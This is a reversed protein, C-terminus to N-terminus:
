DLWKLKKALLWRLLSGAVVVIVLVKFCALIIAGDIADLQTYPSDTM